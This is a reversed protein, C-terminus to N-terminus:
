IHKIQHTPQDVIVKKGIFTVYNSVEYTHCANFSYIWHIHRSAGGGGGGGGVCVRSGNVSMRGSALGLARPFM